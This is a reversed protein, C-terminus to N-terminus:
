SSVLLESFGVQEQLGTCVFGCSLPSFFLFFIFTPIFFPFFVFWFFFLHNSNHILSTSLCLTKVPFSVFAAKNVQSVIQLLSEM